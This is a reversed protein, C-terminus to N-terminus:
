ICYIYIFDSFSFSNAFVALYTYVFSKQLYPWMICYRILFVPLLSLCVWLSNKRSYMEVLNLFYFDTIWSIASSITLLLFIAIWSGWILFNICIACRTLIDKIRADWLLLSSSDWSPNEILVTSSLTQSKCNSFLTSEILELFKSLLVPTKYHYTYCSFM